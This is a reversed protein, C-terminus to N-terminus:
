KRKLVIVKDSNRIALICKQNGIRIPKMSKVDGPLYFGSKLVPIQQFKQNGKGKLLLGIGADIRGTEVETAYENGALLIDTIGDNDIDETLITKVPFLQAEKPLNSITFKFNGDNTFVQSTMDTAKFQMASALQQPTFIDQITASAYTSYRLFKKKLFVMQDLLNDRTVLPTSTNGQYTSIVFDTSGNKDFDNVVMTVPYQANGRYRNNLGLNGLVLDQDGDQDLDAAHVTNWWGQTNDYIIPTKDLKGQNNKFITLPMWDGVIVLDNWGNKDLDVWTADTVMGINTFTSDQGSAISFIGQKNELLYSKPIRGYHGPVVRGGIYIDMDGDQDYDNVTLAKASTTVSTPIGTSRVFQGKGDNTYLRLPVMDPKNPYENGGSAVLLDLDQDGDADFFLASVDEFAADTAFVSSKLQQFTGNSLQMHIQGEFGKAGGIYFDELGDKNIDGVALAPGQRSLQRPLLPELKFDIYDNEVHTYTLATQSTIDTFPVSSVPQSETVQTNTKFKITTTTNANVNLKTQEKGGPWIVTVEANTQKGIGTILNQDHTSLYGRTPMHHLIQKAGDPTSVIVKAGYAMKNADGGELKLKIYNGKKQEVANNQYVLAPEFFTNVVLDLDGDNDLDGYAAGNSWSPVSLGADQTANSFILNGNNKFYYNSFKVSPIVSFLKTVEEPTKVNKIAKVVSDARYKVYDMDTVDRLYGNTIYIDKFGDQDFDAMLPAWSWDTFALGSFYGIESFSGNGNNLHLCNKAYQYELGYKVNKLFNDYTSGTKLQKQRKHDEPLMDLTILDMFGDNNIDAYDSGMSSGSSHKFFQNFKNTFTGNKNNIYLYDPKLYDNCVYVDPYHDDNFDAVIASLGYAYNDVGAQFTKDVFKGNRNEYYRDSVYVRNTDKGVELQGVENYALFVTKADRMHSPHNLLYLDLDGDLDFDSFYAQTSYSEDALGYEAAKDTFTLDKNNIYLINRRHTPNSSASKCVYIDLFGDNNIDVITVGTSLGVETAVGAKQTIDEFVFNGKNLYLKNPVMSGSFYIDALGDNNFDGIGVGGGNYLYEYTLMNTKGDEIIQNEFRITSKEPLIRTFLSQANSTLNANFLFLVAILFVKTM